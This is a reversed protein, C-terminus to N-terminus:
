QAAAVRVMIRLGVNSAGTGTTFQSEELQAPADGTGVTYTVWGRSYFTASGGLTKDMAAAWEGARVKPSTGGLLTASLAVLGPPLIADVALSKIGTTSSDIAGADVILRDPLRSRRGITHACLRMTSGAGATTVELAIRDIRVPASGVRLPIFTAIGAAFTGSEGPAPTICEPAVTWGPPMLGYNLDPATAPQGRVIGVAVTM